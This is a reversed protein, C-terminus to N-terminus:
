NNHQTTYEDHQPLKFCSNQCHPKPQTFISFVAQQIKLSSLIFLYSRVFSTCKSHVAIISMPASRIVEFHILMCIQANEVVHLIPM